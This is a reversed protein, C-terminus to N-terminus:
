REYIIPVGAQDYGFMQKEAADIVVKHAAGDAYRLVLTRNPADCDWKLTTRETKAGPVRAIGNGEADLRAVGKMADSNFRWDGVANRCLADVMFLPGPGFPDAGGGNAAAPPGASRTAGGSTLAAVPQPARAQPQPPEPAETTAPATAQLSGAARAVRAFYFNDGILSSAEWPTQREQTQRRVVERAQKFMLEAPQDSDRMARTLAESYPSNSGDGDAAVDGPATSYAILVGAPADMRALGRDASRFSRVFPNNRCADLIVFNLRNRAYRMQEIVWDASVAEIDVDADRAISAGVPILYNRGNLQVGHGAYFFLGVASPGAQELSAGFDQIARKMGAQNGDQVLRVEFGLGQLTSAMLKADNAPNALPSAAYHSNGVVLAIRRGDAASADADGAAGGFSRTAAGAAASTPASREGNCGAATLLLVASLASLASLAFRRLSRM